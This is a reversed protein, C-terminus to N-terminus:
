LEEEITDDTRGPLGTQRNLCRYLTYYCVDQERYPSACWGCGIQGKDAARFYVTVRCEGGCMLATPPLFAAIEVCVCVCVHLSLRRADWAPTGAGGVLLLVSCASVQSPPLEVVFGGRAWEPSRAGNKELTFLAWTFPSRLAEATVCTKM